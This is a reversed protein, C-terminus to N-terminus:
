SVVPCMYKVEDSSMIVNLECFYKYQLVTHCRQAIQWIDMIHETPGRALRALTEYVLALKVCNCSAVSVHDLIIWNAIFLLTQIPKSNITSRSWEYQILFIVNQRVSLLSHTCRNMWLNRMLAPHHLCCPPPSASTEALALTTKQHGLYKGTVSHHAVVRVHLKTCRHCSCPSVKLCLPLTVTLSWVETYALQWMEGM